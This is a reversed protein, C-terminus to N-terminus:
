RNSYRLRDRRDVKREFSGQNAPDSNAPNKRVTQAVGWVSFVNSKTTLLSAFNRILVEKDWDTTGPLLNRRRSRCDRLDGWSLRISQCRRLRSWTFRPQPHEFRGHLSNCPRYPVAPCNAFLAQLPQWRQPPLLKVGAPHIAANVNLKGATSNMYSMRPYNAAVVKARLSRVIALRPTRNVHSKTSVKTDCWSHRAAHRNSPLLM